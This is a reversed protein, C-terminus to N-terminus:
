GQTKDIFSLLCDNCLRGAGYKKEKRKRIEEYGEIPTEHNIGKICKTCVAGAYVIGKNEIKDMCKTCPQLLTEKKICILAHEKDEFVWECWYIVHGCYATKKTKSVHKRWDEM